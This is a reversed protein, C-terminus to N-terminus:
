YNKGAIQLYYGEIWLGPLIAPFTNYLFGGFVIM